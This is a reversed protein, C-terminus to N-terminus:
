ILTMLVILGIIALCAVFRDLRNLFYEAKKIDDDEM